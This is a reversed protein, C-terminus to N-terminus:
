LLQEYDELKKKLTDVKILLKICENFNEDTIVMDEVEKSLKKMEYILEEM